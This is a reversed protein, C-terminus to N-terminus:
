SKKPQERLWYYLPIPTATWWANTIPLGRTISYCWEGSFCSFDWKQLFIYALDYQGIAVIIIIWVLLFIFWFYLNFPLFFKLFCFIALLCYFVNTIGGDGYGNVLVTLSAPYQSISAQLILRVSTKLWNLYLVKQGLYNKRTGAAWYRQATGSYRSRTFQLSLHHM